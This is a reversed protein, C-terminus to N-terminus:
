RLLDKNIWKNMIYIYCQTANIIKITYLLYLNITYIFYLIIYFLM